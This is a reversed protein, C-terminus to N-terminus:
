EMLRRQVAVEQRTIKSARNGFSSRIYTLVDAIEQDSLHPHPPMPNNYKEGDIVLGANSGQLVLNILRNKDKLVYETRILPPNLRPVGGGDAMHCSLCNKEYVIKGGAKDGDQLSFSFIGTSLLIAAIATKKFDTKLPM